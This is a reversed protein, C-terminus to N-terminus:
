DLGLHSCSVFVPSLIDTDDSAGQFVAGNITPLGDTRTLPSHNAQLPSFSLLAIEWLTKM